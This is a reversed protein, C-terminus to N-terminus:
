SNYVLGNSSLKPAFDIATISDSSIFSDLKNVQINDNEFEFIKWINLLKDRSATVFYKSDHSWACSWIIRTHNDNQKQSQVCVVFEYALNNLNSSFEYLPYIKKFLVILFNLM